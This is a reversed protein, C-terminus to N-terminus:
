DGKLSLRLVGGINKFSLNKHGQECIAAMPFAGDAFSGSTYTQEAPFSVGKIIFGKDGDPEISLDESFPYVAVIGEIAAGSGETSLNEMLSFEGSSSGVSANLVQYANGKDSGEFIAIRDGSSWVVSRDEELTTRTGTGFTEVSAYYNDQDTRGEFSEQCSALILAATCVALVKKM